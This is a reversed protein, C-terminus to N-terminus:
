FVLKRVYFEFEWSPSLSLMPTINNVHCDPSHMQEPKDEEPIHRELAM